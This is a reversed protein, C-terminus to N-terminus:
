NSGTRFIWHSSSISSFGDSVTVYWEYETNPRLGAWRVTSTSGSAANPHAKIVTFGSDQMNFPLTFQSNPTTDFLGLTPSYTSVRIQNSAPSFEMMRLWGNGGNPLGQYDSLLTYVTHGNFVDQRRNEALIHGCLMLFLNPNNKLADYIAQGQVSFGASENMLYHSVIMGRRNSYIKLLKDAWDLIPADPTQDYELYIVIFDLGSASFLQYHNDQNSSYHGGYYSRRYFRSTGFYQNYLKTSNGDPSGEPSQDHNGVAIGYPIGEALRTTMPNELLSMAANVNDWERTNGNNNGHEVCDGLHTVCAVNRVAQQNVIWQTQATFIAPTGGYLGAAYYQTDPLAIISFDAGASGAPKGYYTVVLNDNDPDSVSVSLSISTSVGGAGNAPAVLVPSLPSRDSNFAVGNARDWGTGRIVGNIARGASDVVITGSGEDLGWRALLGPASIIQLGMGDRIQQVPRAYNWIRVEDMEGAFFGEPTGTSDLATGLGAHQISDSRPIKGVTSAAELVGNLYLQWKQGDYSVAAHYWTNYRISTGGAVPHNLGTDKDEFDAVLVRDSGRIGLFYNMDVPSGDAEARGKTVLPVADVGGNGTFATSGDGERRFWTEITFATVGLASAKGFTVYDREGSFSLAGNSQM